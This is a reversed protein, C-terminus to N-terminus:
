NTRALLGVRTRLWIHNGDHGGFEFEFDAVVVNKFPLADLM